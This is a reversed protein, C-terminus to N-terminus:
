RARASNPAHSQSLVAEGMKKGGVVKAGVRRAQGSGNGDRRVVRRASAATCASPSRLRLWWQELVFVMAVREVIEPGHAAGARVSLAAAAVVARARCVTRQLSANRVDSGAHQKDVPLRRRKDDGSRVACVGATGRRARRVGIIALKHRGDFTDLHRVQITGTIGVLHTIGVAACSVRSALPGRGPGNLHPVNEAEIHLIDGDNHMKKDELIVFAAPTHRARATTAAAASETRAPAAWPGSLAFAHPARCGTVDLRLALPSPTRAQATTAAAANGSRTCPPSHADLRGALRCHYHAPEVRRHLPLPLSSFPHPERAVTPKLVNARRGFMKFRTLPLYTLPCRVHIAANAEGPDQDVRDRNGYKGMIEPNHKM